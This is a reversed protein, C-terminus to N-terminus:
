IALPQCTPCFHTSRQAIVIRAIPTGCASCSRGTRGYVKFNEQFNGGPYVWDFSAGNAAIGELLVRRIAEYLRAAEDEALSAAIRQPHLRALHLAEDAYINGIGAVFTQDLLLPKLAGRRARLRSVFQERTVSLADPGLSGIVEAPDGVLWVRGFKRADDFRLALDGDLLWVLRAHPTFAASRPVVDLRGSMRLHILLSLPGDGPLDLGLLLYKGYRSVSRVCAGAIRRAFEAPALNAIERPWLVQVSQITRGVLSPGGGPIGERLARAITEVEPLEPM